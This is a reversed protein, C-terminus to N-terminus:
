PLPLLLYLNQLVCGWFPLRLSGEESASVKQGARCRIPQVLVWAICNHQGEMLDSGQNGLICLILVIIIKRRM